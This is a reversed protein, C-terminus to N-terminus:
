SDLKLHWNGPKQKRNCKDADSSVTQGSIGYSVLSRPNRLNACISKFEPFGISDATAKTKDTYDTNM